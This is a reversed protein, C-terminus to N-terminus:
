FQWNSDFSSKINVIQTLTNGRRSDSPANSIYPLKLFIKKEAISNPITNISRNSLYRWMFIFGETWKIMFFIYPAKCENEIM